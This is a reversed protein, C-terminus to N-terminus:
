LNMERGSLGPSKEQCFPYGEVRISEYLGQGEILLTWVFWVWADAQQLKQTRPM